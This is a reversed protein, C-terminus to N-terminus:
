CFRWAAVVSFMLAAVLMTRVDYGFCLVESAVFFFTLEMGASVLVHPWRRSPMHQM